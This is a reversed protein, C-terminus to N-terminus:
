GLINFLGQSSYSWKQSLVLSRLAQGDSSGADCRDEREAEYDAFCWPVNGETHNERCIGIKLSEDVVLTIIEIILWAKGLLRM